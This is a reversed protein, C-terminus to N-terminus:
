RYATGGATGDATSHNVTMPMLVEVTHTTYSTSCSLESQLHVSENWQVADARSRRGCVSWPRVARERVAIPTAILSDQSHERAEFVRPGSSLAMKTTAMNDLM